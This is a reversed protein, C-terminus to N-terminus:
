RYDQITSAVSGALLLAMGLGGLAAAADILITMVSSMRRM